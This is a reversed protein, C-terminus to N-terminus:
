SNAVLSDLQSLLYQTNPHDPPTASRLFGERAVTVFERTTPFELIHLDDQGGYKRKLKDYRDAIELAESEDTIQLSRTDLSATYVAYVGPKDAFSALVTLHARSGRVFDQSFLRRDKDSIPTSEKM